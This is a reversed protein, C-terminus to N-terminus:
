GTSGKNDVPSTSQQKASITKTASRKSGTGVQGGRRRQRQGDERILNTRQESKRRASQPGCRERVRRGQAGQMLANLIAERLAAHLPLQRRGVHGSGHINGHASQVPTKRAALWVNPSASTSALAQRASRISLEGNNLRNVVASISLRAPKGLADCKARTIRLRVPRVGQFQPVRNM